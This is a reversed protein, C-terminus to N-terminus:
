SAAEASRLAPFKSPLDPAEAQFIAIPEPLGKFRWSGLSRVDISDPLASRMAASLITQGGHAAFCIRAAAHVSLGV